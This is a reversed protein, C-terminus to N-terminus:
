HLRLRTGRYLQATNERLSMVRSPRYRVGFVVFQPSGHHGIGHGMSVYKMIYLTSRFVNQFVVCCLHFGSPIPYLEETLFVVFFFKSFNCFLFYTFVLQFRLGRSDSMAQRFLTVRVGTGAGTALLNGRRVLFM